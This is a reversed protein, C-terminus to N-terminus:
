QYRINLSKKQNSDSKLCWRIHDEWHFLFSSEPIALTIDYDSTILMIVWKKDLILFLIRCIVM